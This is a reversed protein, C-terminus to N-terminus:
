FYKKYIFKALEFDIKDNVDISEFKNLITFKPNKGVINKYKIMKDKSIINIGFTLAHYNGPLDQSNPANLLDYNLPTHNKWIFTKLESVTNFSDYKKRLRLFKKFFNSYTKDTIVPSTCPCYVIYDGPISEALNKFFKGGSCKSSAFYKDRLHFKVGKKKAIVKAKLSDSSVVINDIYKVKKLQDIKIELLSKKNVFNIFNKNKLRVSNKRVPIIATINYNM